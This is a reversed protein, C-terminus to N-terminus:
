CSTAFPTVQKMEDNVRKKQFGRRKLNWFERDIDDRFKRIDKRFVGAQSPQNISGLCIPELELAGQRWSALLELAVQSFDDGKAKM